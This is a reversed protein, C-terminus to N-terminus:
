AARRGAPPELLAQAVELISAVAAPWAPQRTRFPEAARGLLALATSAAVAKERIPRGSEARYGRFLPAAQTWAHDILTHPGVGSESTLCAHALAHALWSALDQVASGSGMRDFDVLLPGQDDRLLVQDASFDGHITAPSAPPQVLVLLAHASVQMAAARAPAEPIAPSIGTLGAFPEGPRGATLGVRPPMAHLRALISGIEELDTPSVEGEPVDDLARGPSWQTMVVDRRSDFGLLEPTPLGAALVAQTSTASARAAGTTFAKVLAEHEDWRVRGVWRRGPKYRLTQAGPRSVARAVGPLHRDAAIEHAVLGLGGNYACWAGRRRASRIMKELKPASAPGVAQVGILVSGAGDPSTARVTAQVATGPKYRLYTVQAPGTLPSDPSAALFAGLVDDDLVTALGPLSPDDRVIARDGSRPDVMGKEHGHRHQSMATDARM